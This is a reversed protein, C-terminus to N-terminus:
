YPMGPLPPGRSGLRPDPIQRHPAPSSSRPGTPLSPMRPLISPGWGGGPDGDPGGRTYVGRVSGHSSSSRGGDDFFGNQQRARDFFSTSSSAPPNDFHGNRKPTSSRSGGFSMTAPPQGSSYVSYSTPAREERNMDHTKFYLDGETNEKGLSPGMRAVPPMGRISPHSQNTAYSSLDAVQVHWPRTSVYIIQDAVDEPYLPVIGDFLANVEDANGQHKREHLPTEVLGPSISTVRVPTDVLDHRAAVTYAALAAKTSCFVSNNPYADNASASCINVIHGAGRRKMMPAFHSVFAMPAIYNTFVMEQMDEPRVKDAATDGLDCGANNVLIDIPGVHLTLEQIRDIDTVDLRVLEPMLPNGSYQNNLSEAALEGGLAQLKAEDRGVLILQCNLEMFRFACARGIGSTAGTILVRAGALELTRNYYKSQM